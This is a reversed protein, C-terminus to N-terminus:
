YPTVEEAVCVGSRNFVKTTLILKGSEDTHSTSVLKFATVSEGKDRQSVRVEQTGTKSKPGGSLNTARGEIEAEVYFSRMAM